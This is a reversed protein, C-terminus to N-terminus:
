RHMPTQTRKHAGHNSASAWEHAVSPPERDIDYALPLLQRAGVSHETNLADAGTARIIGTSNLAAARPEVPRESTSYLIGQKAQAKAKAQAFRLRQL